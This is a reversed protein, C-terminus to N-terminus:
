EPQETELTFSQKFKQGARVSITETHDIQLDPRKFSLKHKGCPVKYDAFPTHKTTNRGDIWVESWPRSGITISCDGGESATGASESGDDSSDTGDGLAVTDRPKKANRRRSSDLAPPETPLSSSGTSARSRSASGSSSTHTAEPRPEPRPEEAHRRTGGRADRSAAGAALGQGGRGDAGADRAGEPDGGGRSDIDQRWPKFRNEGKIELVHHGAPIRYARFDTRAQEGTPGKIPVGDFWVLGGPPESTLEFGADPSAELTIAFRAQQGARLEVNQDNRLYGDRTVSVLYTGPPKDITIPSHDGVKVNDISVTADAPAVTLQLSGPRNMSWWYWFGSGGIILVAAATLAAYLGARSPRLPRQAEGLPAAIGSSSVSPMMPPGGPLGFGSSPSPSSYPPPLTLRPSSPRTIGTGGPAGLGSPPTQPNNTPIGVLTSKALVAPRGSPGTPRAARATHGAAAPSPPTKGRPPELVPPPTVLHEPATAARLMDPPPESAVTRDGDEQFFLQQSDAKSAPEAPSAGHDKDFIQTDLEEDDWGMDGPAIDKLAPAPPAPARPTSARPVPAVASGMSAVARKPSSTSVEAAAAAPAAIQRFVELKANDEEIEVAFNKKM